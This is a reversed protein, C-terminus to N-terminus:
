PQGQVLQRFFMIVGALSFIALACSLFRISKSVLIDLMFTSGTLLLNGIADVVYLCSYYNRSGKM